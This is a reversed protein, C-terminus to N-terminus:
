ALVLASFAAKAYDLDANMAALGCMFPIIAPCIHRMREAANPVMRLIGVELMVGWERLARDLMAMLTSGDEAVYNVALYVRLLSKDGLLADCLGNLLTETATEKNVTDVWAFVRDGIDLLTLEAVADTISQKTPYYYYLTGKSIGALAAIDGLSTGYVGQKAYLEAAAHVALENCHEKKADM